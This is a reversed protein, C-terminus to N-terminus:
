SDCAGHVREPVRCPGIRSASREFREKSVDRWQREERQVGQFSLGLLRADSSAEKGKYKEVETRLMRRIAIHSRGEAKLGLDGQVVETGDLEIIEGRPHEETSEIRVWVQGESIM